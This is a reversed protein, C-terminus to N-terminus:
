VISIVMMITILLILYFQNKKELKIQENEMRLKENDYKKQLTLMQKRLDENHVIELLSDTTRQLFLM